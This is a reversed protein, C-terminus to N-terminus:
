VVTDTCFTSFWERFWEVVDDTRSLIESKGWVGHEMAEVM